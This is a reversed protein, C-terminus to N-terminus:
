RIDSAVRYCGEDIAVCPRVCSRFKQGLALDHAREALGHIRAFERLVEVVDAFIQREVTLFPNYMGTPQQAKAVPCERHIDPKAWPNMDAAPETIKRGGAVAVSHLCAGLNRFMVFVFAM